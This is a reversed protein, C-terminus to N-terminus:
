YFYPNKEAEEILADLIESTLLESYGNPKNFRRRKEKLWTVTGEYKGSGKRYSDWETQLKKVMRMLERDSTGKSYQELAIIAAEVDERNSLNPHRWKVIM